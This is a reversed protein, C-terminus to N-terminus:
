RYVWGSLANVLSNEPIIKWKGDVRVLHVTVKETRTVAANMAADVALNAVDRLSHEDGRQEWLSNVEGRIIQTMEGTYVCTMQVDLAVTNESVYPEADLSFEMAPWAKRYFRSITEDDLCLLKEFDTGQVFCESVRSFDATQVALLMNRVSDAVSNRDDWVRPAFFNGCISLYVTGVMLLASLTGFFASVFRKNKM